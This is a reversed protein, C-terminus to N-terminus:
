DEELTVDFPEELITGSVRKVTDYTKEVIYSFRIDVYCSYIYVGEELYNVPIIDSIAKIYSLHSLTAKVDYDELANIISDAKSFASDDSTFVRFRVDATKIRDDSNLGNDDRINQLALECYPFAPADGQCTWIPTISLNDTVFDTLIKDIATSIM